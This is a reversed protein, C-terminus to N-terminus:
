IVHLKVTLVYPGREWPERWGSPYSLSGPFSTSSTVAFLDLYTANVDSRGGPLKKLYKKGWGYAPSPTGVKKNEM